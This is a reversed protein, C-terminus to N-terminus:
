RSQPPQQRRSRWGEFWAIGGVSVAGAAAVPVMFIGAEATEGGIVITVVVAAVIVALAGLRVGAVRLDGTRTVLDRMAQYTPLALFAIVVALLLLVAGWPGEEPFPNPVFQGLTFLAFFAPVLLVGGVLAGILMGIWTSGRLQHGHLVWALVVGAVVSGVFMVQSFVQAAISPESFVPESVGLLLFLLAGSLLFADASTFYRDWRNVPSVVRSMAAEKWGDRVAPAFMDPIAGHRRGPSAASRDRGSAESTSLTGDTPSRRFVGYGRWSCAILVGSRASRGRQPCSAPLARLARSNPPPRGPTYRYAGSAALVTKSTSDDAAVPIALWCQLLTIM